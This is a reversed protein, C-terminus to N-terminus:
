KLYDLIHQKVMKYDFSKKTQPNRCNCLGFIIIITKTKKEIGIAM